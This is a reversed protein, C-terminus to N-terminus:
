SLPCWLVGQIAWGLGTGWLRSGLVLCLLDLTPDLGVLGSFAIRASRCPVRRAAGTLSWHVLDSYICITQMRRFPHCSVVQRNWAFCFQSRVPLWTLHPTPHGFAPSQDQSSACRGKLPVSQVQAHRGM